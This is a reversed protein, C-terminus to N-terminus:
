FDNLNLESCSKQKNFDNLSIWLVTLGGDVPLDIGTIYSSSDSLLFIFAEAIEEPDAMRKLCLLCSNGKHAKPKPPM